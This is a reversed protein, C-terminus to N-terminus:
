GILLTSVHGLDGPQMALEDGAHEFSIPFRCGLQATSGEIIGAEALGNRRQDLLNGLVCVLHGVLVDDGDTRRAEALVLDELDHYAGRDALGAALVGVCERGQGARRFFHAM